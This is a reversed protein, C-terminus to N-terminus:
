KPVKDQIEEPKLASTTPETNTEKKGKKKQRKFLEGFNDFSTTFILSFGGSLLAQSASGTASNLQNYNTRNFLKIRLKGDESLLYELTWDGAISSVSAVNDPDTFGGDRTVILKGEMFVYSIRLQFTKLADADLNGLDMDITLNDDVQSIWYSLQNSVFESVSSGITGSSSFSNQQSFNRLILLSFVQRNLEQQDVAITNLFGKIQTDLDANSKPYEDIIIDFEIDPTLLQGNLSLLVEVPYIRDLDPTDRYVSDVLPKLSTTVKYSADIDMIGAYPDGTWTIKSRPNIIFEKNVINYMTFNYGGSVFEYNGLMTFEGKTDIKMSLHGNGRGRIIDGSTIDFIIEGYADETVDLDFELNLGTVKVDQEADIYFNQLTDSFDVFSIYDEFESSNTGGIPIYFKTGRETTAQARITIDEIPGTIALTGSAIGTGYFLENDNASTSLVLFRQMSGNLNINFKKFNQHTFSGGLTAKNNNADTLSLEKLYIATSDFAWNGEVRYFTNLYNVKLGARSISGEGAIKPSKIPGTIRINGSIGGQLKSFLTEIFPEAVNLRANMFTANLDLANAQDFPNFIGNVLIMPTDDRNVVLQIDFLDKDNNWDNSSFINGVLIQNIAFDGIYFNSVITPSGYFNSIAFEGSLRGSLKKSILPNITGIYLNNASISLVKEPDRSIVGAVTLMQETSSINLNQITIERNAITIFNNDQITWINDLLSLNSRNLHIQTSDKYFYIEGYLDNTNNLKHQIHYWNFDIKNNDWVTSFVLDNLYAGNSLFQEASQIDAAALIKPKGIYKSADVNLNNNVFTNGAYSITDNVVQM